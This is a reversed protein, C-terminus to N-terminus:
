KRKNQEIHTYSTMDMGNSQEIINQYCITTSFELIKHIIIMVMLILILVRRSSFM